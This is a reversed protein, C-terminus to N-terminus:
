GSQCGRVRFDLQLSQSFHLVLDDTIAGLLQGEQLQAGDWGYGGDQGIVDADVVIVNHHLRCRSQSAESAAEVGADSGNDFGASERM